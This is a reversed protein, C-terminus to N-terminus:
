AVRNELEGVGWVKVKVMDGKKLPGVGAPTGTAIIDGPELTMISSIFAILKPVSFIMNATSSDQVVKGNLITQIRLDSADIGTAIWPGFPSFTDFSKARTWQVDKKQIDRATVDNFCAYGLVCQKAKSAKIGKCRKGIVVALEGEYDVRRSAKPWIIKGGHGTLSSPPKLFIVPEDPLSTLLKKRKLEEAHDVYNLGVCIIKQPDPIPPLFRVEKYGVEATPFARELANEQIFQKLSGEGLLKISDEGFVCACPRGRWLVTGYRHHM